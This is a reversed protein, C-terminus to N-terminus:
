CISLYCKRQLYVEIDTESFLVHVLAYLERPHLKGRNPDYVPLTLSTVGREVLFDRLRTLALVLNEPNVHQKDTAKTVLFCLYKGPIQLAVPPLAIMGGVGPRQKWLFEITKYERKFDAALSTRFSVEATVAIACTRKTLIFDSYTVVINNSYHNPLDFYSGFIPGFLPKKAKEGEM